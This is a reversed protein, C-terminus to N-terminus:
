TLKHLEHAVNVVDGDGDASAASVACSPLGGEAEKNRIGLVLM